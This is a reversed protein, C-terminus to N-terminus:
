FQLKHNYDSCGYHPGNYDYTLPTNWWIYPLIIDTQCPEEDFADEYYDNDTDFDSPDSQKALEEGDLFGDGDTDPNAPNTKYGDTDGHTGDYYKEGGDTDVKYSQNMVLLIDMGIQIKLEMFLVM